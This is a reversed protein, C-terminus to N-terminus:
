FVFWPKLTFFQQPNFNYAYIFYASDNQWSKGRSSSLSKDAILVEYPLLDYMSELANTIEESDLIESKNEAWTWVIEGIPGGYLERARAHHYLDTVALYVRGGPLDKFYLITDDYNDFEKASSSSFAISNGSLTQQRAGRVAFKDIPLTQPPSLHHLFAHNIRITYQSAYIPPISYLPSIEKIFFHIKRQQQSSVADVFCLLDSGIHKKQFDPHVCFFDIYGCNEFQQTGYQIGRSRNTYIMSGLPRSIVTGVLQNSSTFAGICIWGNQIGSQLRESPISCRSKETIKFFKHLFEAYLEMESEKCIKLNISNDSAIPFELTNSRYITAPPSIRQFLTRLADSWTPGPSQKWFSM